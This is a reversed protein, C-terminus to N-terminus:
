YPYWNLTLSQGNQSAFFLKIRKPELAALM